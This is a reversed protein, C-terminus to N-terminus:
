YFTHRMTISIDPATGYLKTLPIQDQLSECSIHNLLYCVYSMCLLWYNDPTGTRNLITNTWAKIAVKHFYEKSQKGNVIVSNVEEPSKIVMKAALFVSNGAKLMRDFIIPKHDEHTLAIFLEGQKTQGGQMSWGGLMAQTFSFLRQKMGPIVKVRLTGSTIGGNKTIVDVNIDGECLMKMHAGNATRMSGSILKKNFVHEESGMM